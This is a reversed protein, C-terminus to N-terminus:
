SCPWWSWFILAMYAFCISFLAQGQLMHSCISYLYYQSNNWSLINQSYICFMQSHLCFNFGSFSYSWDGQVQVSCSNKLIQTYIIYFFEWLITWILINKNIQCKPRATLANFEFFHCKCVRHFRFFMRPNSDWLHRKKNIHVLLIFKSWNTEQEM